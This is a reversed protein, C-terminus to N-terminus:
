DNWINSSHTSSSQSFIRSFGTWEKNAKDLDPILKTVVEQQNPDIAFLIRNGNFPIDVSRQVQFYTEESKPDLQRFYLIDKM